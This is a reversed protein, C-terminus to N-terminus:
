SHRQIIQDCIKYTEHDYNKKNLRLQKILTLPYFQKCIVAVNGYAKGIPPVVFNNHLHHQHVKM